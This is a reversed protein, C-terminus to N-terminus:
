GRICTMFKSDKFPDEWMAKVSSKKMNMFIDKGKLDDILVSPDTGHIGDSLGAYHKVKTQGTSSDVVVKIYGKIRRGGWASTGGDQLLYNYKKDDTDILVYYEGDGLQAPTASGGCLFDDTSWFDSVSDSYSRATKIFVNKKIRDSLKGVFTIGLVFLVAVIIAVFVTEASFKSKKM